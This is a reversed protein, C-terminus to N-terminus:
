RPYHWAPPKLRLAAAGLGLLYFTMLGVAIGALNAVFDYVDPNRPPVLAQTIEDLPAYIALAAAVMAYHRWTLRGRRTRFWFAVLLALIAFAAFHAVKDPALSIGEPMVMWDPCRPLRPWHTGFILLSFYSVLVTTSLIHM